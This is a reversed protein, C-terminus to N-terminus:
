GLPRSDGLHGFDRLFPSLPRCRSSGSPGVSELVLGSVLFLLSRPVSSVFSDLEYLCSAKENMEQLGPM